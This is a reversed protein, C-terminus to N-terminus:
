GLTKRIEKRAWLYHSPGCSVLYSALANSGTWSYRGRTFLDEESLSEILAVVRSASDEWGAMVTAAPTDAYTERIRANLAPLQAWNFGEAPVQPKEGREAREHWGLVMREWEAVHAVFDKPSWGNPSLAGFQEPTMSAIAALLAARERRIDEILQSKTTARPM